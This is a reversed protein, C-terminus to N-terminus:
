ARDTENQIYINHAAPQEWMSPLKIPSVASMAGSAENERSYKHRRELSSTGM